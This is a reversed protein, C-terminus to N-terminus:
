TAREREKSKEYSSKLAINFQSQTLTLTGKLPSHPNSLPSTTYLGTKTDISYDCTLSHVLSVETAVDACRRYTMAAVQVNRRMEKVGGYLSSANREIFVKVVRLGCLCM